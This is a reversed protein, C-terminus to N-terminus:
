LYVCLYVDYLEYILEMYGIEIFILFTKIIFKLKPLVLYLEKYLLIATCSM